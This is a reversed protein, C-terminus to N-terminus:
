WGLGDRDLILAGGKVVFGLGLGDRDLILAFGKSVVVVVALSRDWHTVVRWRPAGAGAAGVGRLSTIGCTLKTSRTGDAAHGGVAM